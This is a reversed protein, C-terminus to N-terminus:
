NELDELYKVVAKGVLFSQTREEREMLDQLKEFAELPIRGAVTVTEPKPKRKRTKQTKSRAVVKIGGRKSNSKMEVPLGAGSKKDDVPIKRPNLGSELIRSQSRLPKYYYVKLYTDTLREPATLYRREKANAKYQKKLVGILKKREDSTIVM